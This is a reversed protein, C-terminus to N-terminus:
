VSSAVPQACLSVRLLESWKYSEEFGKLFELKLEKDWAESVLAEAENIDDDSFLGM